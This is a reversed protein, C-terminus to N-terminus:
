SFPPHTDDYNQNCYIDIIDSNNALVAPDPYERFHMDELNDLDIDLDDSSYVWIPEALSESFFILNDDTMEGLRQDM